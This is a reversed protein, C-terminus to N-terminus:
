NSENFNIQGNTYAPTGNILHNLSCSRAVTVNKYHYPSSKLDSVLNKEKQIEIKLLKDPSKPNPIDHAFDDLTAYVSSCVYKEDSQTFANPPPAHGIDQVKEKGITDLYLKDDNKSSYNPVPEPVKTPYTPYVDPPPITPEPQNWPEQPDHYDRYISNDVFTPISTTKLREEHLYASNLGITLGLILGISNGVALMAINKPTMIDKM